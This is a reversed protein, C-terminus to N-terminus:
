LVRVNPDQMNWPVVLDPRKSTRDEEPRVAALARTPFFFLLAVTSVKGCMHVPASCLHGDEDM